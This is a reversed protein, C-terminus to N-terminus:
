MPPSVRMTTTSRWVERTSRVVRRVLVRILDWDEDERAEDWDTEKGGNVRLYWSGDSSRSENIETVM